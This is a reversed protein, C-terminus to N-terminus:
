PNEVPAGEQAGTVTAPITGAEDDAELTFDLDPDALDEIIVEIDQDNGKKDSVGAFIKQGVARLVDPMSSLFDAKWNPYFNPSDKDSSIVVGKHM